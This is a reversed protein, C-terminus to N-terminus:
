CVEMAGPGFRSNVTASGMKRGVYVQGFGGKGLKRDLKYMPSGGVQVQLFLLPISDGFNVAKEQDIVICSIVSPFSGVKTSLLFFPLASVKEPLPPTNGGEDDPLPAQGGSEFEDM